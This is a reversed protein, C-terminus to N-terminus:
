SVRTAFQWNQPRMVAFEDNYVFLYGEKPSQIEAVAAVIVLLVLEKRWGFEIWANLMVVDAFVILQLDAMGRAFGNRAVVASEVPVINAL